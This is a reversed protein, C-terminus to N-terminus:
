GRFFPQRPRLIAEPLDARVLDRDHPPLEDGVLRLRGTPSDDTGALHPRRSIPDAFRRASPNLIERDGLTLKAESVPELKSKVEPVPPSEVEKQRAYYEARVKPILNDVHADGAEQAAEEIINHDKLFRALPKVFEM